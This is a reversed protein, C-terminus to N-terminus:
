TLSAYCEKLSDIERKKKACSTRHCEYYGCVSCPFANKVFLKVINTGDDIISVLNYFKDDVTINSGIHDSLEVLSFGKINASRISGKKEVSIINM